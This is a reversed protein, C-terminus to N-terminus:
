SWEGTVLLKIGELVLRQDVHTITKSGSQILDAFGGTAVVPADGIESKIREVLGDIMALAGYLIGSQIAHVTNTGIVSPPFALDVRPLLAALQNLSEAATAVGPAIIGGRYVRDRDVVEVVTATGLDVVIVPAGYHKIATAIGCLRDAGIAAPPDYAIKISKVHEHGVIVPRLELMRLAASLEKTLSPVVSAIGCQDIQKDPFGERRLAGELLITWEDKTRRAKSSFRWEHRWEGSEWWGVTIHTNGVDLAVFRNM